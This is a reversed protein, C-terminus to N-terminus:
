HGAFADVGRHPPSLLKAFMVLEMAGWHCDGFSLCCVTSSDINLVVGLALLCEPGQCGSFIPGETDARPSFSGPSAVWSAVRAYRARLAVPPAFAESAHFKSVVPILSPTQWPLPLAPSTHGSSPRCTRASWWPAARRPVGRGPFLLYPRVYAGAEVRPYGGDLYLSGAPSAAQRM